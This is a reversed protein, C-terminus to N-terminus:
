LFKRNKHSLQTNEELSFTFARANLQTIESEKHLGNTM